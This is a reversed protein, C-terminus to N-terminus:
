KGWRRRKGQGWIFTLDGDDRQFSSTCKDLAGNTTTKTQNTKKNANAVSPIPRWIVQSQYGLPNVNMLDVPNYCVFFCKKNKFTQECVGKNYMGRNYIGLSLIPLIGMKWNRDGLPNLKM